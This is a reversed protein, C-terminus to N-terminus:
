GKTFTISNFIQEVDQTHLPFNADQATYLFSYVYGARSVLLQSFRYLVGNVTATYECRLASYRGDVTLPVYEGVLSHTGVTADFDKFYHNKMYDDLSNVSNDVSFAGTNLTSGDQTRIAVMGDNRLVSWGQPCTIVYEVAPNTLRGEASALSEANPQTFSFSNLTSEALKNYESFQEAPVSLTMVALRRDQQAFAQLFRYTKGETYTATYVYSLWSGQAVKEREMKFDKLDAAMRTAYDALYDERSQGENLALSFATLSIASADDKVIQIMVDNQVVKWGAPYSFSFGLTANALSPNETPQQTCACVSCLSILVLLFALIRKM